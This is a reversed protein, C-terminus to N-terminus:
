MSHIEEVTKQHAEGGQERRGIPEDLAQAVAFIEGIKALAEAKGNQSELFEGGLMGASDPNVSNGDAFGEGAYGEGAAEFVGVGM